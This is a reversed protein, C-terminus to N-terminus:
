SPNLWGAKIKEIMNWITIAIGELNEMIEHNTFRICEIGMSNFYATRIEDYAEEAIGSHSGGDVEIVLKLAPAYFDVIYKGIGFQRRFKFGFMQNSKLKSWLRQEPLTTNLRLEKRKDVSKKLNFIDKAQPRVGGTRGKFPSSRSDFNEHLIM